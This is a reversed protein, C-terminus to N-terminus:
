QLRQDNLLRLVPSLYCVTLQFSANAAFSLKKTHTENQKDRAQRPLIILKIYLQSFCVMYLHSFFVDTKENKGPIIKSDDAPVHPNRRAWDVFTGVYCVRLVISETTILQLLM